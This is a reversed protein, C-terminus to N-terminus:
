LLGNGKHVLLLVGSTTIPLLSPTDKDKIKVAREQTLVGSWGHKSIDTHLVYDQNPDPLNLIHSNTLTTKM